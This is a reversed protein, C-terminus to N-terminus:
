SKLKHVSMFRQREVVGVNIVKADFGFGRVGDHQLRLFFFYALFLFDFFDTPVFCKVDITYVEM